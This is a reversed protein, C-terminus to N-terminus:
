VGGPASAFNARLLPFVADLTANDQPLGYWKALTNAYQLTSVSPVWRGRGGNNDVDYASATGKSLTPFVRGNGGPLPVGYFRGAAAAGGVVLFHNGWAHDTGVIGGSGAPNFTRSFDSLTFATVKPTLDGLPVTDTGGNPINNKLWYYFTALAQSVQQLLGPQ